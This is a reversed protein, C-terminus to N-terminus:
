KVREGRMTFSSAWPIAAGQTSGPSFLHRIMAGGCTDLDDTLRQWDVAALRKEIDDCFATVSSIDATNM